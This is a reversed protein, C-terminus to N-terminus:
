KKGYKRFSAIFQYIFFGCVIKNLYDIFLSWGNLELKPVIFDNRHTLDIFSFYYGVLNFDIPNSNFIRGITFLYFVYLTISFIILGFFPRKISTSHNNSYKNIKLILRDTNPIDEIRHLAEHAISQLKQAEFYNGTIEMSRKLQLIIEYQDKFYNETKKDPYHVNEIPMFKEFSSFDNPFTCATFNTNSLKSRYFSLRSFKNLDVNDFWVNDLNCKHISLKSELNLDKPSINYFSLSGPNSIESLYINNIKSNEITFEGKTNGSISISNLFSHFIKYNIPNLSEKNKISLNINLSNVESDSLYYGINFLELVEYRRRYFGKKENNDTNFKLIFIKCDFINITQNLRLLDYYEINLKKLLKVWLKPFLNEYTYSINVSNQNSIFLYDFIISNNIDISKINNSDIISSYISSFLNISINKSKIEKIELERIFCGSFNVIIQEFSILDTNKIILKDFYCNQFNFTIRTPNYTVGTFDSNTISLTSDGRFEHDITQGYAKPNLLRM